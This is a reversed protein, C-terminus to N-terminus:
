RRQHHLPRVRPNRPLYRLRPRDPRPLQRHRREARRGAECGRDGGCRREGGGDKGNSGLGTTKLDEIGDVFRLGGGDSGRRAGYISDRSEAWRARRAADSRVRTLDIQFTDTMWGHSLHETIPTRCAGPPLADVWQPGPRRRRDNSSRM